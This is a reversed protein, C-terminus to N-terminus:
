SQASIFIEDSKEFVDRSRSQLLIERFFDCAAASFSRAEAIGLASSNKDRLPRSLFLDAESSLYRCDNVHFSFISCYVLSSSNSLNGDRLFIRLNIRLVQKGVKVLRLFGIFCVTLFLLATGARYRVGSQCQAEHLSNDTSWNVQSRQPQQRALSPTQRFLAECTRRNFYKNSVGKDM